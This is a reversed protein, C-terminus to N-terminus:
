IEIVVAGAGAYQAQCSLTVVISRGSQKVEHKGFINILLFDHHLSTFYFLMQYKKYARKMLKLCFNWDNQFHKGLLM